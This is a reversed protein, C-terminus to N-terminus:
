SGGGDLMKRVAESVIEFVVKRMADASVKGVKGILKKFRPVTVEPTVESSLDDITSKLTERDEEPLDLEDALEKAAAVRAQTWPFPSGCQYCFSPQSYKRVIIVMTGHEYIYKGRIPSECSLCATITQNGCRPCYPVACEPRTKSVAPQRTGTSACKLPVIRM